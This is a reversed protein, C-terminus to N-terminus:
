DANYPRRSEISARVLKDWNDRNVKWVPIRALFDAADSPEHKTAVYNARVDAYMEPPIELAM